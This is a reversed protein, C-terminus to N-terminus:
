NVGGGGSGDRKRVETKALSEILLDIASHDLEGKGNNVLAGMMQQVLSTAPLPVNYEGAASPM